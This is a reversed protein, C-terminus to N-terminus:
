QNEQRECSLSDCASQLRQITEQKGLIEMIESIPPGDQSSVFFLYTLLPLVVFLSLFSCPYQKYIQSLKHSVM